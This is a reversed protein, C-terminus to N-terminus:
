KLSEFLEKAECITDVIHIDYGMEEYAKKRANSDAVMAGSGSAARNYTERSKSDDFLFDFVIGCKKGPRIEALRGPKQIASTNNGGAEANILVRVDSFTVGQVYIKTCLCRKIQNTRMKETIVDREKSTMRKAMAVTTDEGITSMYLDAQEEHKIFVLTQWDEPIIENCLVSVLNAMKASKFLCENYCGDRDYSYLPTVPVRIFIVSIPCIAGEEVAEKYTRQTIVPGFVGTILKDRGDYRGKLTAGFGYRRAKTFKDILPLRAQTVLAHPEDALIIDPTGGDVKDLSDASCITVGNTEFSMYKTKSGSCILKVERDKIGREGTVDKYLQRVLDVGPAIVVINANPYARITNIMLTTNHTVLHDWLLFLKDPGELEFGYYNQEGIDEITFGSMTPDVRNSMSRIKKHGKCPIATLDGSIQIRWYKGTFGISKISKKTINRTCRFGLGRCLQMIDESLGEYKTTIEYGLGNNSYGDSDILGALLELRQDRSATLYTKPIRKEDGVVCIDKIQRFASRHQGGYWPEQTNIKVSDNKTRDTRYDFYYGMKDAWEKLGSQVDKDPKTLKACGSKTGDGIWIGVVWPDVPLDKHEFEIPAWWLKTIHKFTKSRSLYDKVSINIISGKVYGGMKAGGTAKLSLIHSENCCFAEGKNPIIRYSQEKGRGLAVVKRPKGDPGMLLDGIKVDQVKKISYDHMLIKTNTMVCKGYRTPAGLLGSRDASLFKTLLEEQSFRFGKMLSFDPKLATNFASIASRKDVLDFPTNTSVLAEIITDVFGQYTIGITKNNREFTTFLERKRRVTKRVWKTDANAELSNEYITLAKVVAPNDAPHFLVQNDYLFIRCLAPDHRAVNLDVKANEPGCPPLINNQFNSQFRTQNM